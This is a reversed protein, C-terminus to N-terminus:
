RPREVAGAKLLYVEDLPYKRLLSVHRQQDEGEDCQNVERLVERFWPCALFCATHDEKFIMVRDNHRSASTVPRNTLFDQLWVVGGPRLIRDVEAVTRLLFRRPVWQLVMRLVVVDVSEDPVPLAHSHGVSFGARPSAINQRAIAISEPGPDIGHVTADPWIRVIEHAVAGYGCGIDCFAAPARVFRNVTQAFYEAWTEEHAFLREPGHLDLARRTYADSEEKWLISDM